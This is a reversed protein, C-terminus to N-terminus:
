NEKFIYASEASLEAEKLFMGKLGSGSTDEICCSPVDLEYRINKDRTVCIILREEDNYRHFVFLDPTCVILRFFGERFVKESRRLKGIRRFFSTLENNQHKWPFPRRCFPDDYGELGAEDGYFVSPVGFMAAVIVYARKLRNIGTKLQERELKMHALEDATRGDGSDGGFVTLIRKTDHTGLFNMLVDCVCKPYRRYIGETASRMKECEGYLIYMIVAECLPYNMVSDLEYGQLYRRRIGYSIKNSADEWVEGLILGDPNEEKVASRIGSIFGDSLEDAVDLRFGSAGLRMYKKVVGNEGLIFERYGECSCNVRPLIDVGWWCEYKDPYSYFDYWPYFPSSKSNYAGVSDYHNYKNFYISDAGTHNFVGDLIVYIDRRRCEACLEAFAEEGGFMSDVHMYDATDYKHNSPSEFIPSLYIVNVGFSQIYDLKEIVGWLDGGFFENNKLPAGRYPPYMPIGNDWDYNIVADKKAEACGSSSFRDVFIHYIIGGKMFAPTEFDRDYLMLQRECISESRLLRIPEEGGYCGSDFGDSVSYHYYYLGRDSLSSLEEATIVKEFFNEADNHGTYELRYSAHREGDDAGLGDSHIHMILSDVYVFDPVSVVFRIKGTNCIAGTLSVDIEFKDNKFGNIEFGDSRFKGPKFKFGDPNFGNPNFKDPEFEIPEFKDSEYIQYKYEFISDCLSMDIVTSEVNM